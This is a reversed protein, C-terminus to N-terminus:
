SMVWFLHYFYIEKYIYENENNWISCQFLAGELFSSLPERLELVALFVPDKTSFLVDSILRQFTAFSLLSAMGPRPVWRRSFVTRDIPSVAFPVFLLGEKFLCLVRSDMASFVSCAFVDQCRFLQAIWLVYPWLNWCVTVEAFYRHGSICSQKVRLVRHKQTIQRM